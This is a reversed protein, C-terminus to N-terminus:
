SFGRLPFTRGHAHAGSCICLEVFVAELARTEALIAVMIKTDAFRRADIERVVPDWETYASIKTSKTEVM